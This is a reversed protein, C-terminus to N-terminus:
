SRLHQVGMCVCQTPSTQSVRLTIKTPASCLQLRLPAKKIHLPRPVVTHVDGVRPILFFLARRSGKRIAAQVWGGQEQRCPGMSATHGPRARCTAAARWQWSSCSCSSMVYRRGTLVTHQTYWVSSVATCAWLQPLLLPCCCCPCCSLLLV